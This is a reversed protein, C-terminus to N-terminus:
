PGDLADSAALGLWLDVRDSTVDVDRGTLLKIRGLRHKLTNPHIGLAAATDRWKGNREFFVRLTRALESDHIQDWSQIPGLVQDRYAGLLSAPVVRLLVAHSDIGGQEIVGVAARDRGAIFAARAQALALRLSSPTPESHAVGIAPRDDSSQALETVAHLFDHEDSAQALAVITDAAPAAAVVADGALANRFSASEPGVLLLVPAAPNLQLSRLRTRLQPPGIDGGDILEILERTLAELAVRREFRRTDAVVAYAALQEIVLRQADSIEAIAARVILVSGRDSASPVPFAAVTGLAGPSPSAGGARIAALVDATRPRRGVSALVDGDASVFTCDFGIERRLLRALTGYADDGTSARLLERTRGLQRRLDRSEDAVLHAAVFDAITTFSVDPGIELLPLDAAECAAVVSEPMTPHVDSLGFGLVAAGATAIENVWASAPIRELWLGNTLVLENPLLYRAPHDLDSVHVSRIVRDLEDEAVIIRAGLNAAKVITRATVGDM